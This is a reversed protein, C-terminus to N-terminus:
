YWYDKVMFVIRGIMKGKNGDDIKENEPESAQSESIKLDLFEESKCEEKDKAKINMQISLLRAYAGNNLTLEAHTGTEIIKGADIVIIKDANKVTSLRQAIIITTRNRIVRDLTVQIKKETNVDLASTAEDLLLIKPKKILARAIAIRQKQGGSLQAGRVGVYTEYKKELNEIFIDAEAEKAAASIDADFASLKGIRINEKISTNFLIPEQSVISIHERLSYLDYEKIDVGDIKISGQDCYYFGEILQVITSKGSGTEGVIALSKGSEVDFSINDLIRIRQKEYSFSVDEFQINGSIWDARRYGDYKKTKSIIKMIRAAGVRGNQIYQWLPVCAGLYFSTMSTALFIMIIDKAEIQEGTTWNDVKNDYMIAGVYFTIGALAFVSLFFVAWGLGSLTGMIMTMTKVPELEKQYKQSIIIQSNCAAVTKVGELAEEAIGGATRYKEQKLVAAGITAKDIVYAAGIQLPLVCLAIFFLQLNIVFAMVWTGVFLVISSLMIMVKEGTAHEIANCDMDISSGFEAPNKKDFFKVPRNIVARFYLSKWKLGTNNGLRVFCVVAVWGAIVTIPGLIFQIISQTKEEEYLKDLDDKNAYMAEIVDGIKIVLFLPLVSFATTFVLGITMLVYDLPRSFQYLQLFPLVLPFSKQTSKLPKSEDDLLIEKYSPDAFKYNEPM